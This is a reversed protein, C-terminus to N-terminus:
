SGGLVPRLAMSFAAEIPQFVFGVAAAVFAITCLHLILLLGTMRNLRDQYYRARLWDILHDPETASMYVLGSVYDPHANKMMDVYRRDPGRFWSLPPVYIESTDLNVCSPLSKRIMDRYRKKDTDTPDNGRKVVGSLIDNELDVRMEEAQWTSSDWTVSCIDRLYKSTFSLTAAIAVCAIALLYRQKEWKVRSHSPSPKKLPFAIQVFGFVGAALLGALVGVTTRWEVPLRLAVGSVGQINTELYWTACGVVALESAFKFIRKRDLSIRSSADARTKKKRGSSANTRASM